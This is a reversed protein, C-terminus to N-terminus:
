PRAVGSDKTGIDKANLNVCVCVCVCVCVYACAYARVNSSNLM